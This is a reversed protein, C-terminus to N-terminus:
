KVKKHTGMENLFDEFSDYKAPEIGFEDFWDDSGIPAGGISAGGEPIYKAETKLEDITEVVEDAAAPPLGWDIPDYQAGYYAAGPTYMDVVKGAADRWQGATAM